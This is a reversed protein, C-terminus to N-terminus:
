PPASVVESDLVIAFPAGINASTYEGFDRAGSTNFRFDVSPNGNQDFSPQANVLTEGTVVPTRELIYFFGEENLAPLIENGAGPAAAGDTTRGVVPQFTLLAPKGILDKVEQASGIGPVQILIRRAGQRQITPERTGAEDIRRRIIELSQAMTREDTAQQEAESLRIILTEGDAAVDIDSQLAGTLTQLPTALGRALEMARAMGEPRSIRVRLENGTSPQLRITGVTEREPRLADRLEPWFAELRTEYVEELRVEALLHAGGRLDLGLNVLSSPLFGPWLGADGLTADDEFGAAMRAEADNAREVREYFGNPLALLLGGLVVAWILVRKWGEIRLM